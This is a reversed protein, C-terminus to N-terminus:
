SFWKFNFHICNKMDAVQMKDRDWYPLNINHGAFYDRISQNIADWRELAFASKSIYLQIPVVHFICVFCRKHKVHIVTSRNHEDPVFHHRLPVEYCTAVQDCHDSPTCTFVCRVKWM